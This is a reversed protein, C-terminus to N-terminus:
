INQIYNVLNVDKDLNLKKRLRYRSQEISTIAVHMLSAIEKSSLNLKLYASLKIENSSLDSHKERLKEFFQTHSNNFHLQFTLWDEKDLLNSNIKKIVKKVPLHLSSNVLESDIKNMDIVLDILLENKKINNLTSSALASNKKKIELSLNEERLIMLERETELKDLKFKEEQSKRKVEEIQKLHTIQKLNKNKFYARYFAHIVLLLLGYFVFIVKTLYWPYKVHFEKRVIESTTENKGGSRIELTYNGPSLGPFSLASVFDWRSWKENLGNLKYQIKYSNALPTKPMAIAVKLFNNGFPIDELELKNISSIITDTKSIFHINRIMPIEKKSDLDLNNITHFIIGNHIGIGFTSDNVKEFKNFDNLHKNRVSYFPNSVNNFRNRDRLVYGISKPTSYWFVNENQVISNIGKINKFVESTYKQPTFSNDIRDYSFYGKPNYFILDEDIKCIYAYTEVFRNSVGYFEYEKLDLGDASLSLRYYGKAPHTVWLDGYKDFEIFRSSEGYNTWKKEFVWNGNILKFVAIGSYFGVYLINEFKPHKKFVWAGGEKYLLKLKQHELIFVGEHSGVLIQNNVKEIEWIQGISKDILRIKSGALKTNKIFLGQNTGLYLLSDKLYSAYVTGFEGKFDLLYNTNGSIQLYSLGKEMGLWLNHNSDTFVKRISNSLLGNSKEQHLLIHGKASIVYMGKRLTGIIFKDQQFEQVDNVLHNEIVANIKWKNKVLRKNKWSWFGNNKTVILLEDNNKVFVNIIHLATKDTGEILVLKNDKIEFLGIGTEQIFVREKSSFLFNFGKNATVVDLDKTIPDYIFIQQFSQFIIKGKIEKIRSFVPLLPAKKEPLKLFLSTYELECISNISWYGFGGHGSTYIHKDDTYLVSRLDSELGHKYNEWRVGDFELLGNPTAFYMIGQTSQSIDFITLNNNVDEETFNKIIPTGPINSFQSWVSNGFYLFFIFVLKRVM